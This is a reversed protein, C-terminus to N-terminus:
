SKLRLAVGRHVEITGTGEGRVIYYPDDKSAPFVRGAFTFEELHVIHVVGARTGEPSQWTVRDSPKFFKGM